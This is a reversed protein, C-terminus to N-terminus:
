PLFVLYYVASYFQLHKKLSWSAPSGRVIIPRSYKRHSGYAYGKAVKVPFLTFIFAVHFFFEGIALQM